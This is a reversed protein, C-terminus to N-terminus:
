APVRGEGGCDDCTEGQRGENQLEGGSCNKNPCTIWAKCFIRDWGIAYAKMDTQVDTSQPREKAGSM